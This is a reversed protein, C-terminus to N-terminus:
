FLEAPVKIPVVIRQYCNNWKPIGFFEYITDIYEPLSPLHCSLINSWNLAYEVGTRLLVRAFQQFINATKSNNLLIM